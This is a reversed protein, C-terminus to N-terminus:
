GSLVTEIIADCAKGYDRYGLILMRNGLEHMAEAFEYLRSKSITCNFSVYGSWENYSYENKIRLNTFGHEKLIRRAEQNRGEVVFIDQWFLSRPFKMQFLFCNNVATNVTEM